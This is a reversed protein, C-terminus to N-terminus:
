PCQVNFIRVIIIRFAIQKDKDFACDCILRLNLYFKKMRLIYQKNLIKVEIFDIFGILLKPQCSNKIINKAMASPSFGEAKPLGKAKLLGEANPLGSIKVLLAM